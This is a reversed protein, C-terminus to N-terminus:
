SNKRKELQKVLTLALRVMLFISIPASAAVLCVTAIGRQGTQRDIWLGIFLAGLAILINLCGTLALIGAISVNKIRSPM